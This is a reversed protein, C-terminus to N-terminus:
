DSAHKWKQAHQKVSVEFDEVEELSTKVECDWTAPNLIFQVGHNVHQKTEFVTWTLSHFKISKSM